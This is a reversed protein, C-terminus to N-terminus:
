LLDALDFSAGAGFRLADAAPGRDALLVVEGAGLVFGRSSRPEFVLATNEDIGMTLANVGREVVEVLRGYRGRTNVHTEITIGPLLGLGEGFRIRDDDDLGAVMVDSLAMTGASTTFLPTGAELREELCRAALTGGLERMLRKQDGGTVCIGSAHGLADAVAPHNAQDGEPDVIWVDGAGMSRLMDPYAQRTVDMRSAVPIVAIRAAAGGAVHVFAPRVQGLPDQGGGFAILHGRRARLRSICAEFRTWHATPPDASLTL